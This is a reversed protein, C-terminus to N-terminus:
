ATERLHARHREISRRGVPVDHKRFIEALKTIGITGALASTVASKDDGPAMRALYDCAGCTPTRDAARHAVELAVALDSAFSEASQPPEYMM